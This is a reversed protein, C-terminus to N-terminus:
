FQVFCLAGHVGPCEREGGGVELSKFDQLCGVRGPSSTLSGCGEELGTKGKSKAALDSTQGLGM